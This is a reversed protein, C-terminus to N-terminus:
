KTLVDIIFGTLAYSLVVIAIGIVARKVTDKAKDVKGEDGGATMWNYGGSIMLVLFITGVLTLVARIGISVFAYIGLQGNDTNFGAGAGAAELKLLPNVRTEEARVLLPLALLSISSIYATLKKM